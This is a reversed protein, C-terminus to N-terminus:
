EAEEKREKHKLMCVNEGDVYLSDCAEYFRSFVYKEFEGEPKSMHERTYNSTIIMPLGANVRMNVAEKIKDETLKTRFEAGFDDLVVLRRRKLKEEVDRDGRILAQEVERFSTFFPSSGPRSDILANCVAAALHTKGVGAPGCLFLGRGSKVMNDFDAAYRVCREKVDLANGNERNFSGFTYEMLREQTGFCLRRAGDRRVRERAEADRREEEERIRRKCACDRPRYGILDNQYHFLAEGCEGCVATRMEEDTM